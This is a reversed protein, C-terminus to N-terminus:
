GVGDRTLVAPLHAREAGKKRRSMPIPNGAMLGGEVAYDFIGRLRQRVKSAMDPASNEVRRIHPMAMATTIEGIPLGNLGSLHNEISAAVQVKYEPRWAGRRAEQKIWDAAVAEFTNSATARKTARAVAKERTLHAGTAAKARAQEAAARAWALGQVSSVK